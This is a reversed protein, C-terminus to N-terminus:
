MFRSLLSSWSYSQWLRLPWVWFLIGESRISKSGGKGRRCRSLMYRHCEVLSKNAQWALNEQNDVGSM